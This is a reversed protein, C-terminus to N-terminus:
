AAASLHADLFTTLRDKTVAGEISEVAEGGRFLILAPVGEVGCTAVSEPSADVEMKAVKLMSYSDSIGSMVPSMLRCPGCWPAWFYVLVPQQQSADVVEQQFQPDTIETVAM